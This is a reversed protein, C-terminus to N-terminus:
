WKTDNKGREGEEPDRVGGVGLLNVGPFLNNNKKKEKRKKKEIKKKKKIKTRQSMEGRSM